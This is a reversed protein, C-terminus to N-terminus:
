IPCLWQAGGLQNSCVCTVQDNNFYPNGYPLSVWCGLPRGATQPISDHGLVGPLDGCSTSSLPVEPCTQGPPCDAGGDVDVACIFVIPYGADGDSAADNGGGDHGSQLSSSCAAVAIASLLVLGAIVPAARVERHHRSDWIM